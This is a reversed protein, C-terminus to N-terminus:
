SACSRRGRALLRHGGSLLAGLPVDSVLRREVAHTCCSACADAADATSLSRKAPRGGLAQSGLLAAAASDSRERGHRYRPRLSSRSATTSPTAPCPVYGFLLYDAIREMTSSRARGVPLRAAAKIESGFALAGGDFSYFLPKKGTRDRALLLRDRRADWLAFRSCGTWGSSSTTAASRTATSSRRPTALPLPLRPRAGRARRAARPLQLDRRQLHDVRTEDENPLPNKAAESLDIIKLRRQALFVSPSGGTAHGDYVLSGSGDPGRHRLLELMQRGVATDVPKGQVHLFGCIGCM